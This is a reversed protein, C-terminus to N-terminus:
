SIGGTQCGPDRSTSGHQEEAEKLMEVVTPWDGARLATLIEDNDHYRDLMDEPLRPDYHGVLGDHFRRTMKAIVAERHLHDALSDDGARPVWGCCCVWFTVGAELLVPIHHLM